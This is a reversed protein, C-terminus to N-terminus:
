VVLGVMRKLLPNGFSQNRQKTLSKDNKYLCNYKNLLEDASIYELLYSNGVATETITSRTCSDKISQKSKYM